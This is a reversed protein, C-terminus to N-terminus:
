DSSSASSSSDSSSERKEKDSLLNDARLYEVCKKMRKSRIPAVDEGEQYVTAFLQDINAQTNRKEQARVRIYHFFCSGAHVCVRVCVCVCVCVCVHSYLPVEHHHIVPDITRDIKDDSWGLRDALFASLGEKNVAGWTFSEASHDVQIHM